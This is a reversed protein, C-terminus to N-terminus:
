RTEQTLENYPPFRGHHATGGQKTKSKIGYVEKIGDIDKVSKIDDDTLGLTSVISIDYLKNNDAYRDLTEAMDPGCAKLGSFFGVGLFAMVLISM